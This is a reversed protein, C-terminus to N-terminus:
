AHPPDSSLPGPFVLLGSRFVTLTVFLVRRIQLDTTTNAGKKMETILYKINSFYYWDGTCAISNNCGEYWGM